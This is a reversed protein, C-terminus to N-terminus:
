QSHTSGPLSLVKQSVTASRIEENLWAQLLTSLPTSEGRSSKHAGLSCYGHSLNNSSANLEEGHQNAFCEAMKRSVLVGTEIPTHVQHHVLWLWIRHLQRSQMVTRVAYCSSFEIVVVMAVIARSVM